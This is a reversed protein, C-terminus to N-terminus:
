RSYSTWILVAGCQDMARGHPVPVVHPEKYIEIGEIWEPPIHDINTAIGGWDRVGDVIIRMCSRGTRVSPMGGQMYDYDVRLGWHSLIDSTRTPDLWEIQDGTIFRGSAVHGMRDYFGGLEGRRRGGSTVVGISELQIADISLRLDVVIEEGVGIAIEDTSVSAYGIREARLRYSGERPAAIQFRGTSDSIVRALADGDHRLLTITVNGIGQGTTQDNLRGVVRQAAAEAVAIISLLATIILRKTM